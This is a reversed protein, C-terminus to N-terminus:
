ENKETIIIKNSEKKLLIDKPISILSIWNVNGTEEKQLIGAWVFYTHMKNIEIGNINECVGYKECVGLGNLEGNDLYYFYDPWGGRSVSRLPQMIELDKPVRQIGGEEIPCLCLCDKQNCQPPMRKNADASVIEKTYSVLYWGKPSELTYSKIEGEELSNIREILNEISGRAQEIQTKKTFIGYMSAALYLLLGISLVALVIKMTEALTFQEAKKNKM